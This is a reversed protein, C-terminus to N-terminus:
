LNHRQGHVKRIQIPSCLLHCRDYYMLTVLKRDVKMFVYSRVQLQEIERKFAPSGSLHAVDSRCVIINFTFIIYMVCVCATMGFALVFVMQM